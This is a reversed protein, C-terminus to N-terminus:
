NVWNGTVIDQFLGYYKEFSVREQSILNRLDGGLIFDMIYSFVMEREDYHCRYSRVVHSINKKMIKYEDYFCSLKENIEKEDQLNESLKKINIPKLAFTERSGIQHVVSFAGDGLYKRRDFNGDSLSHTSDAKIKAILAQM